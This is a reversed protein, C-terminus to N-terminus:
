LLRKSSYCANNMIFLLLLRPKFNQALVKDWSELLDQKTVVSALGRETHMYGEGTKVYENILEDQPFLFPATRVSTATRVYSKIIPHDTGDVDLWAFRTAGSQMEKPKGLLKVLHEFKDSDRQFEPVVEDVFRSECSDFNDTLLNQSSSYHQVVQRWATHENIISHFCQEMGRM